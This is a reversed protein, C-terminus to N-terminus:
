IRILHLITDVGTLGLNMSIGGGCDASKASFLGLGSERVRGFVIGASEARAVLRAPRLRGEGTSRAAPVAPVSSSSAPTRSRERMPARTVLDM